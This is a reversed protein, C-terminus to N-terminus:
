IVEREDGSIKADEVWDNFECEADYLKLSRTDMYLKWIMGMRGFRNKVIKVHKESEYISLDPDNGLIGLFDADNGLNYCEAIFSNTLEKLPLNSGERNIQSVSIVPANFELSLARLDRGIQTLDEDKRNTKKSNDNEMLNIYDVMIISPKINRLWLERLYIRIDSVKAKGTPFEKIYLNGRKEKSKIERLNKILEKKMKSNLYMKNIDLKSYISDFRQAFAKESMEMTFLVGTYGSIIQRALLNSMLLSKGGATVAAFIILSYPPFGGNIIEDLVPYCSPIKIESDNFIESLRKNLDDFYNLGLNVKLDACLAEEILQRSKQLNNDKSEIIDISQMIAYKFARDKLYNNTEEKLWDYNKEIDFDISNVKELYDEISKKSEENEISNIIIEQQPLNGYTKLHEKIKKFIISSEDGDFYDSKFKQTILISYHKDWFAAKIICKEIYEPEVM